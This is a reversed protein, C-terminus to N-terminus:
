TPVLAAEVMKPKIEDVLNVDSDGLLAFAPPAPNVSAAFPM